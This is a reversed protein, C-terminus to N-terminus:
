AAAAMSRIPLPQRGCGCGPPRSPRLEHDRSTVDPNSRPTRRQATETSRRTGPPHTADRCRSRTTAIATACTVLGSELSAMARPSRPWVAALERPSTRPSPEHSSSSRYAAISQSCARCCFISSAGAARCRAAAGQDQIVHGAGRELAPGARLAGDAVRLVPHPAPQLDDVAQQGGGFADRGGDLDKGAVGPVGHGHGALHGLDLVPEPDGPHHQDPVPAHQGGGAAARIPRPPTVPRIMRGTVGGTM